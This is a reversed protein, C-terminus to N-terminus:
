DKRCKLVFLDGAELGLEEVINKPLYLQLGKRGQPEVNQSFGVSRGAKSAHFDCLDGAELELLEKANGQVNAKLYVNGNSRNKVTARATWCAKYDKSVM